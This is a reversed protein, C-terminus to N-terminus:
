GGPFYAVDYFQTPLTIHILNQLPAPAKFKYFVEAVYITHNVGVIFNTPITAAHGVGSPGVLSTANLQGSKVQQSVVYYGASANTNNLATLIVLGSTSNSLNLPQAEVQVALLANQMIGLQSGGVGRASLNAGERSLNVLLQKEYIASCFDMLGFTLVILVLMVLSFEVLAQGSRNGCPARSITPKAKTSIENM